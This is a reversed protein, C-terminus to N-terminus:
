YAPTRPRGRTGGTTTGPNGPDEDPLAAAGTAADLHDTQEGNEEGPNAGAGRLTDRANEEHQWAQAKNGLAQVALHVSAPKQKPTICQFTQGSKTHALGVRFASRAICCQVGQAGCSRVGVRFTGYLRACAVLRGARPACVVPGGVRQM